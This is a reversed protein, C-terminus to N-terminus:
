NTYLLMCMFIFRSKRHKRIHIKMYGYVVILFCWNLGEKIDTNSATVGTVKDTIDNCMTKQLTQQLPKLKTFSDVEFVHTSSPHSAMEVLETRNAQEIGVAYITVGARRLSIAAKSVDDESKGDTIVVAVRQVRSRSGRQDTFVEELTFNLAAGTCTGGSRYPLINVFQLIDDKDNFTNLYFQAIPKTNYTVIGIRVRSLSIDLGSVIRHLFTRVLQFNLIGISGSEDVIFM